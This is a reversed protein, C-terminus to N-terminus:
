KRLKKIKDKILNIKLEDIDGSYVIRLHKADEIDKQAGLFEEKFAINGEISSFYVELGTLPFKTRSDIQENDLEDKAFKIEMEPPFFGEDDWVYRVSNEQILYKSYIIKPENSQICVFGEKILDEHLLIFDKEDMKRIIMDIDETGRSRGHAIAVFGSCIIYEVHKDVVECFEEVFKDLITKDEIRREMVILLM